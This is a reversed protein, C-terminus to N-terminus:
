CFTIGMVAKFIIKLGFSFPLIYVRTDSDCSEKRFERM